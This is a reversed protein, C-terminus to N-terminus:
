LRRVWWGIAPIGGALLALLILGARAVGIWDLATLNFALGIVAGGTLLLWLVALLFATVFCLVRLGERACALFETM